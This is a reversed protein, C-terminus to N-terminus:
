RPTHWSGGLGGSGVEGELDLLQRPVLMEKMPQARVPPPQLSRAHPGLVQTQTGPQPSPTAHSPAPPPNGEQFAVLCTPSAPAQWSQQGRLGTGAQGLGSGSPLFLSRQLSLPPPGPALPRSSPLVHQALPIIPYGGLAPSGPRALQQARVCLAPSLPAPVPLQESLHPPPRHGSPLPPPPSPCPGEGM